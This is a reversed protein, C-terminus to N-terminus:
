VASSDGAVIRANELERHRAESRMTEWLRPHTAVVDYFERPPLRALEVPGAAVVSASATHGSLLSMEGFYAGERLTALLVSRREGVRKVIDVAGLVILYFGGANEGERVLPEGSDAHVPSFRALLQVRQEEPLSKFLPATTLLTSLLRERYFRELAPGVEPHGAALERLLRRPIEYLEGASVAEVTAHRRRDALLAFEGFLAGEGLRAVEVSAGGEDGSTKLVRVEGAGIVFCSDGRDGERLVIDGAAIERVLMNQELEAVADAPLSSFVGLRGATPSEIASGDPGLGELTESFPREFVPMPLV